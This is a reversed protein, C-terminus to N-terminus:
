VCFNAEAAAFSSHKEGQPRSGKGSIRGALCAAALAKEAPRVYFRVAV